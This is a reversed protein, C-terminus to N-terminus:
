FFFWLWSAVKFYWTSMQCIWAVPTNVNWRSLSFSWIGGKAAWCHGYLSWECWRPHCVQTHAHTTSPTHTCLFCQAFDCFVKHHSASPFCSIIYCYQFNAEKNSKKIQKNTQIGGMRQGLFLACVCVEEVCVRARRGVTERKNGEGKGQSKFLEKTREWQQRM